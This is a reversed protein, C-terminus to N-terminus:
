ECADRGTEAWGVVEGRARRERKGPPPDVQASVSDGVWYPLLAWEVVADLVTPVRTM